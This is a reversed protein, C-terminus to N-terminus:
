RDILQDGLHRAGIERGAANEAAALRDVLGVALAASDEGNPSSRRDLPLRPAPTFRDEYASARELPVLRPPALADDLQLLLLGDLPDLIPALLGISVAHAYHDLQLPLRYGVDHQVLEIAVRRHLVREADVHQRDDIAPRPDQIQLAREFHEEFVTAVDHSAAC